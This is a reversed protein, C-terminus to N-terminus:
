SVKFKVNGTSLFVLFFEILYISEFMTLCPIQFKEAETQRFEM